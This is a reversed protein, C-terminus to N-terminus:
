AAPTAPAGLAQPLERRSSIDLKAYAHGLHVEVTKVTVFLAQAIERNSMGEAAMGAVRRESPTLSEMGHMYERRVRAGTAALEDRAETALATAGCRRALDLAERLPERADARAGGRRLASGLAVLARAHELRGSSGALVGVAERLLEVGADGGEAVGAARLAIGISRPAGCARALELEERALRAGEEARGARVMGTAAHSRWPIVSPNPSGWLEQRRGCALLDEIGDELRGQALRLRGRSDLLPTFMVSDPIEEGLGSRELTAVAEDLEGREILVDMLFALAAPLGLAWGHLRAVELSGRVDAEAERLDGLRYATQSRFCSAISHGLASGRERAVELAADFASRAQELRESLALANVAVIFPGGGPGAEELLRGGDLAREALEAARQASRGALATEYALNALLLREGPSSGREARAVTAAVRRAAIPRTSLDLRAANVLEAELLMSLESDPDGLEDIGRALVDVAEPLRGALMLARGLEHIAVARAAADALLAIAAQLHEEAAPDPVRAEASGLEVLVDGRLGPEPPEELARRLLAVAADAAGGALAARAASRLREVVWPDAAPDTQRLHAAVRDEDAGEAALLEAARRHARARRATPLEAHISARVVPHTFDLPRAPSLIGAAALADAADGAAELDLGALAAATRLPVAVGLVAVAEALATAADPLRALRVLIARAIAENGLDALRAAGAADPGIRDAHVADLLAGVMFPNGASATHCAACFADEAAEGLRARVIAAVAPPTLPAPSLVRAQRLATLTALEPPAAGPEDTRAAVLLTVPLDEVRNALYALWRLSAPDAWHADDVAVLLPEESAVNALAWYLGHLVAASRDDDLRAGKGPPAAGLLPAALAAAGEFTGARGGRVVPEFLSRVVGFAFDRELQGGRAVLTRIGCVSAEDRAAEVLRTKGIGAPGRVLLLAGAGDAAAGIAATVSAVESERELLGM